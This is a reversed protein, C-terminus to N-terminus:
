VLNGKASIYFGSSFLGYLNILGPHLEFSEWPTRPQLDSEFVNKHLGVPFRLGIRYQSIGEPLIFIKPNVCSSFFAQKVPPKGDGITTTQRVPLYRLIGDMLDGGIIIM